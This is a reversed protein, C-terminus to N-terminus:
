NLDDVLIMTGDTKRCFVSIINTFPENEAFVDLVKSLTKKDELSFEMGRKELDNEIQSLVNPGNKAKHFQPKQSYFGEVSLGSSNHIEYWYDLTTKSVDFGLVKSVAKAERKPVSDSDYGYELSLFTGGPKLVRSIEKVAKERDEVFSLTGGSVVLDISKNPFHLNQADGLQIMVNNSIRGEAQLDTLHSQCIDVMSESIDIGIVTADPFVQAIASLSSGTNSGIELIRAGSSIPEISRLSQRLLPLGGPSPNGQAIRAVFEVYDTAM